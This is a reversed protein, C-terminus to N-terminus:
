LTEWGEKRGTLLSKFGTKKGSEAELSEEFINHDFARSSKTSQMDTSIAACLCCKSFNGPTNLGTVMWASDVNVICFFIRNNPSKRQDFSCFKRAPHPKATLDFLARPIFNQISHSIFCGKSLTWKDLGLSLGGGGCGAQSGFGSRVPAPFSRPKWEWRNLADLLHCSSIFQKSRRDPDFCIHGLLETPLVLILLGHQNGPHNIGWVAENLSFPSTGDHNRLKDGKTERGISGTGDKRLSTEKQRAELNRSCPDLEM